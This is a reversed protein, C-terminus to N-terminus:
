ASVGICTVRMQLTPGINQSVTSITDGPLKFDDESDLDLLPDLILAEKEIKLESSFSVISVIVM